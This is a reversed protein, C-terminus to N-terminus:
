AHDGGGQLRERAPPPLARILAEMTALAEVVGEVHQNLLRRAEESQNYATRWENERTVADQLRQAQVEAVLAQAQEIKEVTARPVLWGRWVAMVAFTILTVLAGSSANGGLLKWFEEL